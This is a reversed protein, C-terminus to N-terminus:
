FPYTLTGGHPADAQIGPEHEMVNVRTRVIGFRTKNGDSMIPACNLNYKLFM